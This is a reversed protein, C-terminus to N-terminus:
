KNLATNIVDQPISNLENAALEVLSSDVALSDLTLSDIAEIIPKTGFTLVPINQKVIFSKPYERSVKRFFVLAEQYTMFDGVTLHFYPAAYHIYTSVDEYKAKFSVSMTDAIQRANQANDFYLRIRYGETMVDKKKDLTISSNNNVIVRAGSISDPLELRKLIPLEKDVETSDTISDTYITDNIQVSSNTEASPLSALAPFFITAFCLIIIFYRIM